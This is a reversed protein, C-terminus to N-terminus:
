GWPKSPDLEMPGVRVLQGIPDVNPFMRKALSESILVAMPAGARDNENLLRGRRLPVHMTSFYEPSVAYRFAPEGVIEPYAEFQMGYEDNDGSLPLQSTLAAS